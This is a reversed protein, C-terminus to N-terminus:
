KSYTVVVEPRAEAMRRHGNVQSPTDISDSAESLAYRPEIKLWTEILRHGHETDCLKYPKGMLRKRDPGSKM